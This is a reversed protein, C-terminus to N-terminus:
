YLVIIRDSISFVVNMDHETVFFTTKTQKSLNKILEVMKKTEEPSMGATPEDLFFTPNAQSLLGLISM